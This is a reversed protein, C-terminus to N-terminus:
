PRDHDNEKTDIHTIHGASHPTYDHYVVVSFNLTSEFGTTFAGVEDDGPVALIQHAFEVGQPVRWETPPHEGVPCGGGAICEAWWPLTLFRSIFSDDEYAGARLTLADPFRDFNEEAFVFMLSDGTSNSPSFRGEGYKGTEDCKPEGVPFCETLERDRGPWLLRVFWVPEGDGTLLGDGDDKIDISELVLRVRKKLTTFSGQATTARGDLTRATVNVAYATNSALGTLKLEHSTTYIDSTQSRHPATTPATPVAEVRISAPESSTLTVVASTGAAKIQPASITPPAAAQAPGALAAPALAALALGAGLM